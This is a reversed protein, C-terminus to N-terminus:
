PKELWKAHTQGHPVDDSAAVVFTTPSTRTILIGGRSESSIDARIALEARELDEDMTRPNTVTVSISKQQFKGSM